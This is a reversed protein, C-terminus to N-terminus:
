HRRCTKFQGYRRSVAAYKHRQLIENERVLLHRITRHDDADPFADIYGCIYQRSGGDVGRYRVRVRSRTSRHLSMLWNSRDEPRRAYGPRGSPHRWLRHPDQAGVSRICWETLPTWGRLIEFKNEVHSWWQQLQELIIRSARGVHSRFRTYTELATGRRRPRAAAHSPEKKAGCRHGNGHPSVGFLLEGRHAAKMDSSVEPFPEAGGRMRSSSQPPGLLLESRNMTALRMWKMCHRAGDV